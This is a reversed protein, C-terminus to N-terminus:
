GVRRWTQHKFSVETFSSQTVSSSVPTWFVVPVSVILLKMVTTPSIIEPLLEMGCLTAQLLQLLAAYVIASELKGANTEFEVLVTCLVQPEDKVSPCIGEPMSSVADLLELELLPLVPPATERETFLKLMPTVISTTTDDMKAM